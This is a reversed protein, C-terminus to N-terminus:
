YRFTYVQSKQNYPSLVGTHKQIVDANKMLRLTFESKNNDSGTCSEYYEVWFQYTGEPATGVEWYINENPGNPCEGCLCDVDLQGGDGYDNAFYLEEGSPTIVHLDLDVNEENTFHLNFRPNGPKGVIEPEQPHPEQKKRCSFVCLMLSCCVFTTLLITKM